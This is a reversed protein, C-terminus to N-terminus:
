DRRRGLIRLLSLFINIFDLYLTLAGLIGLNNSNGNTSLNKIKQTDYATLGVFIFITIYSLVYSVTNNKLFINVVSALIVGILAMLALNGISTLDSKTVYGYFAMVGFILASIFFVSAISASTYVLFIASLTIGNLVSYALYSTLATGFSLATIRLSLFFVLALEAIILGYFLISNSYLTTILVQNSAVYLASLGTVMLGFFMWTFAQHITEIQINTTPYDLTTRM